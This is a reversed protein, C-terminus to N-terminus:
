PLSPARRAAWVLASRAAPNASTPVSQCRPDLWTSHPTRYPCARVSCDRDVLPRLAAEAASAAAIVDAPLLTDPTVPSSTV